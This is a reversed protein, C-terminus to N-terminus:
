GGLIRVLTALGGMEFPFAIKPTFRSSWKCVRGFYTSAHTTDFRNRGSM